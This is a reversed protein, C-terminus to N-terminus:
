SVIKLSIEGIKKPGYYKQCNNQYLRKKLAYMQSSSHTQLNSLGGDWWFTVRVKKSAIMIGDSVFKGGLGAESVM